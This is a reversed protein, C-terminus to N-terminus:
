VVSQDVYNNRWSSEHRVNVRPQLAAVTSMSALDLQSLGYAVSLRDYDARSVGEAHLTKPLALERYSANLWSCNPQRQMETKLKKYFSHRAGGGCLFFPMGAISEPDLLKHEYTGYLVKGAVQDRVKMFFEHDPTQADGQFSVDVGDVYDLYTDPL